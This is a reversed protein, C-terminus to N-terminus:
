NKSLMNSFNEKRFTNELNNFYSTGNLNSGKNSNVQKTSHEM